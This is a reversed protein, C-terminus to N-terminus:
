DALDEMAKVQGLTMRPILRGDAITLNALEFIVTKDIFLGEDIEVEIASPVGAQIGLVEEVEGVKEGSSTLLDMDDLEEVNVNLGPVQLQEDEIEVWHAATQAMATTSMLLAASVAAITKM